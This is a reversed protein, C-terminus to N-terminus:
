SPEKLHVFFSIAKNERTAAVTDIHSFAPATIAAAQNLVPFRRRLAPEVAPWDLYLYGKDPTLRLPGLAQQFRASQVLPESTSLVSDVASLSDTFVEHRQQQLHLGLLETKLESSSRQGNKFTSKEPAIFRTWATATVDGISVPVKSYGSAIAYQDLAAIGEDDREVVLAWDQSRGTNIKGLAYDGTAWSWSTDATQEIELQLASKLLAPLTETSLGVIALDSRLRSLDHDAIAIDSTAPLLALADSTQILEDAVMPKDVRAYPPQLASSLLADVVLGTKALGISMAAFSKNASFANLLNPDFYALGIRKEPLAAVTERYMLNQALNEATQAVQISRKLVRVDNALLVFQDGILATAKIPSSSASTASLIRVGSIKETTPVNGYLAQQQWFLQLFEKAQHQRGPAIEAAVLYGPQQGNSLDVDLDAIARAFTVEDGLWPQITQEYDLGTKDLFRQKFQEVEQVNQQWQEAGELSQLFAVLKDPQVLLSISFSSQSPVFLTAAAIPRDSGGLLSLPSNSELYLFGGAGGLLLISSLILMVAYFRESWFRRGFRGSESPEMAAVM